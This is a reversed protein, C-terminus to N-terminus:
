FWSTLSMLKKVKKKQLMWTWYKLSRLPSFCWDYRQNGNNGNKRWWCWPRCVAHWEAWLGQYIKSEGLFFFSLHWISENESNSYLQFMTVLFPKLFLPMGIIINIIIAVVVVVIYQENSVLKLSAWFQQLHEVVALM